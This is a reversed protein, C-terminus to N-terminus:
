KITWLGSAKYRAGHGFYHKVAQLFIDTPDILCSIVPSAAVVTLDIFFDAYKKFFDQVFWPFRRHCWRNVFCLVVFQTNVCLVFTSVVVYCGYGHQKTSVNKTCIARGKM